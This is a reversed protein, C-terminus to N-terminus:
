VEEVTLIPDGPGIIGENEAHIEKVTGNVGAKVEAFQKMVEVLGVVTDAAVVSGVEVFPPQEPAPKTYFIGPLPSQVVHESM